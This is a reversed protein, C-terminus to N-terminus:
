WSSQRSHKWGWSSLAFYLFNPGSVASSFLLAHGLFAAFNLKRSPRIGAHQFFSVWLKKWQVLSSIAATPKWSKHLARQTKLEGKQPGITSWRLSFIFVASVFFQFLFISITFLLYFYLNVCLDQSEKCFIYMTHM